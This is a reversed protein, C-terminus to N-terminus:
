LGNTISIKFTAWRHLYLPNAVIRICLEVDKYIRLLWHKNKLKLFTGYKRITPRYPIIINESISIAEQEKEWVAKYSTELRKKPHKWLHREHLFFKAEM